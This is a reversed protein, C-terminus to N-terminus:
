YVVVALGKLYAGEPHFINVPHDAPQTLRELIKIKRGCAIAASRVTNEFLPADVVQSCSFTFVMGGNKVANLALLNLRKYGIVANHRKSFSKAFAPPDIIIIDYKDKSQQLFKFVDANFVQHNENFGNREVNKKALELAPASADVSDVTLAGKGLAYVSFGGTYCFANLVSKGNVYESLIQRNDRQDIFFGTKQGKEWDVLFHFGNELVEVPLASNGYLYEPKLDQNQESKFYVAKLRSNMVTQLAECVMERANDMGTTHSAIVAVGNYWDIILGPLDDGEANVLRFVNTKTSDTLGKLSRLQLAESIRREFFASDIIESEEFSLIRVAISSDFFHGRAKFNGKSDLVEVVSGDPIKMAPRSIAGSFIWPHKRELFREKGKKLNITPNNNM